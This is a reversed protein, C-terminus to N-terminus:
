HFKVSCNVKFSAQVFSSMPKIRIQLNKDPFCIEFSSIGQKPNSLSFSPEKVKSEERVELDSYKENKSTQYFAYFAQIEEKGFGMLLQLSDMFLKPEKEYFRKLVKFLELCIKHYTTHLIKRYEDPLQGPLLSLGKDQWSSSLKESSEFGALQNLEAIMLNHLFKYKKNFEEQRIQSDSFQSFYKAIFSALGGSKTNVYANKKTLKLSIYHTCKNTKLLLDTEALDQMQSSVKGVPKVELIQENKFSTKITDATTKSYQALKKYLDIDETRLVSEYEAIKQLYSEPMFKNLNTNKAERALEQGVLYEFLNWKLENILAEKINTKVINM